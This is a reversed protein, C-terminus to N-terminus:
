KDLFKDIIRAKRDNELRLYDIEQRLRNIQMLLQETKEKSEDRIAQIDQRHMADIHALREKMEANERELAVANAAQKDLTEMRQLEHELKEKCPFEGDIGGILAVLIKRITYYRCDSYDGSKIRAITGHPITSEDALRQNTWGLAKQKKDWWVLLDAFPLLMLNPVCDNGIRECNICKDFM